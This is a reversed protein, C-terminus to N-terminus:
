CGIYILDDIIVFEEYYLNDEIEIPILASHESCVTSGNALNTMLPKPLRSIKISIGEEILSKILSKKVNNNSAGTDFCSTIPKGFIKTNILILNNKNLSFSFERNLFLDNLNKNNMGFNFYPEFYLCPDFLHFKSQFLSEDVLKINSKSELNM